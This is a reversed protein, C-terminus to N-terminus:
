VFQIAHDHFCRLALAAAHEPPLRHDGPRQGRAAVEILLVVRQRDDAHEIAEGALLRSVVPARCNSAIFVTHSPMAAATGRILAKLELLRRRTEELPVLDALPDYRAPMIGQGLMVSLWNSEVFLEREEYAVRGSSAFLSMRYALGPPIAMARCQRWLPADDRTTSKYHLIIFDRVRDFEELQLRNYEAADHPDFTM